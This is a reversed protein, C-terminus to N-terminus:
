FGNICIVVTLWCNDVSKTEKKHSKIDCNLVYFLKAIGADLKGM